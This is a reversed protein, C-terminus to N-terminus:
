KHERYDVNIKNLKLSFALTVFFNPHWLFDLNSMSALKDFLEFFDERFFFFFFFFFSSSSFRFFALHELLSSLLLSLLPLLSLCLLFLVLVRCLFLFVSFLLPLSTSLLESPLSSSACFSLRVWLRLFRFCSEWLSDSEPGSEFFFLLFSQFAAHSSLELSLEVSQSACVHVFVWTFVMSFQQLNRQWKLQVFPKERCHQETNYKTLCWCVEATPTRQPRETYCYKMVEATSSACPEATCAAHLPISCGGGAKHLIRDAAPEDISWQSSGWVTQRVQKSTVVSLVFVLIICYEEDNSSLLHM